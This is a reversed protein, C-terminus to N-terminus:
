NFKVELCNSSWKEWEGNKCAAGQFNSVMGPKEISWCTEMPEEKNKNRCISDKPYWLNKKNSLTEISPRFPM